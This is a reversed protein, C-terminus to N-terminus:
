IAPIKILQIREQIGPFVVDNLTGLHGLVLMFDARVSGNNLNIFWVM